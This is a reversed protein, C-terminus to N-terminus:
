LFLIANVYECYYLHTDAVLQAAEAPHGSSARTVMACPTCLCRIVHRVLHYPTLSVISSKIDKELAVLLIKQFAPCSWYLLLLGGYAHLLVWSRM